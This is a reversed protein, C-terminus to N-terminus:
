KTLSRYIDMMGQFYNPFSTNPSKPNLLMDTAKSILDTTDGYKYIQCEVPRVSADSALSQLGLGLSERLMVSDGDTSTPRLYLRASKVLPWMETIGTTQWYVYESAGANTVKNKLNELHKEDNMNPMCFVLSLAPFQKRLRIFADICTDTGYIENGNDYAFSEAYFLIYNKKHDIIFKALSEPLYDSAEGIEIPAIYAPLVKIERKFTYREELREKGAQNVTVFQVNPDKVLSRLCLKDIWWMGKIERDIMQNHVTFVLPKKQLFHIAWMAFVTRLNLHSHVIQYPRCVRYLYPLEPIVLFSRGHKIMPHFM